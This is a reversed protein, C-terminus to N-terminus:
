VGNSTAYVGLADKWSSGDAYLIKSVYFLDILYGDNPIVTIYDDLSICLQRTEGSNISSCLTSTIVGVNIFACTKTEPNYVSMKVQLEEIRKPSKNYFSFLIGGLKCFNEVSGSVYEPESITFEPYEGYSEIQSCSLLIFSSIILLSRYNKLM